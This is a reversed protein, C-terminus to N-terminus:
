MADEAELGNLVRRVPQPTLGPSAIRTGRRDAHLAQKAGTLLEDIGVPRRSNFHAVGVSLSLAPLDSGARQPRGARLMIAGRSAHEPSMTLAAFGTTEIRGLVEYVGYSPYLDRLFNGMQRLLVDGATPGMTDVVRALNNVEFYILHAASGDRAAVDLLRTGSQVFGRRNCLGTLEDTVTACRLSQVLDFLAKLQLAIRQNKSLGQGRLLESLLRRIRAEDGEMVAARLQRGLEAHRARLSGQEVSQSVSAAQM